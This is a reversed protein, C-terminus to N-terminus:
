MEGGNMWKVKNRIIANKKELDSIMQQMKSTFLKKRDRTLKAHMRNREKRLVEGDDTSSEKSGSRSQDISEWSKDKEDDDEDDEDCSDQGQNSTSTTQNHRNSSSGNSSGNEDSCSSSPPSTSGSGFSQRTQSEPHPRKRSASNANKEGSQYFSNQNNKAAEMRVKNRLEEIINKGKGDQQDSDSPFKTFDSISDERSLMDGEIDHLSEKTGLCLLINATKSEEYLQQLHSAQISVVCILIYTLCKFLDFM